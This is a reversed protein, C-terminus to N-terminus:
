LLCTVRSPTPLDFKVLDFTKFANNQMIFVKSRTGFDSRVVKFVLDFTKFANNFKLDLALFSSAVKKVLDFTRIITNKAKFVKSRTFIILLLKLRSGFFPM